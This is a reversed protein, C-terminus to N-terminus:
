RGEQVAITMMDVGRPLDVLLQHEGSHEAQFTFRLPQWDTGEGPSAVQEGSTLEKGDPDQVRYRIKLDGVAKAGTIAMMTLQVNRVARSDKVPFPVESLMNDATNSPGSVRTEFDRSELNNFVLFAGFMVIPVLGALGLKLGVKRLNANGTRLAFAWFALLLVADFALLVFLTVLHEIEM